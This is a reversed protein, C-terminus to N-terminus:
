VPGDAVLLRDNVAISGPEVVDAYVGACQAPTRTVRLACDGLRVVKGVLGELVNAEVDLVVNAKPHEAVYDPASVLHVAYKKSRNGAPGQLTIEVSDLQQGPSDSDVYIFLSSVTADM